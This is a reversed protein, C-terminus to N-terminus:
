IVHFHVLIAWTAGIVAAAVGAAMYLVNKSTKAATEIVTLRESHDEMTATITESLKDLMLTNREVASTHSKIAGDEDAVHAVLKETLIDLKDEIKDLKGAKYELVAIKTEIPETM